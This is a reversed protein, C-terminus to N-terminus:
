SLRYIREANQHLLKHQLREPRRSVIKRLPSVPVCVPWDSGFVIRDEGFCDITYSQQMVAPTQSPWPPSLLDLDWLHRHTDVIPMLGERTREM